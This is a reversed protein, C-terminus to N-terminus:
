ETSPTHHTVRHKTHPANSPAQHTVQVKPKVELVWVIISRTASDVVNNTIAPTITVAVFRPGYKAGVKPMTQEDVTPLRDALEGSLIDYDVSGNLVIDYDATVHKYQYKYWLVICRAM